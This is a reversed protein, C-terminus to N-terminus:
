MLHVYKLIWILHKFLKFIYTEVPVSTTKYLGSLTYAFM